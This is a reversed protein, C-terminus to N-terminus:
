HIFIVDALESAIGIPVKAGRTLGRDLSLAHIHVVGHLFHLITLKHRLAEQLPIQENRLGGAKVFGTGACCVRHQGNRNLVVKVM